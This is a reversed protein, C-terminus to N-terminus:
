GQGRLGGAVAPALGALRGCPGGASTPSGDRPARSALRGSASWSPGSASASRRSARGGGGPWSRVSWDGSEGQHTGVLREMLWWALADHTAETVRVVRIDPRRKLADMFRHHGVQVAVVVAVDRRVIGRGGRFAASAFEMTGLEDVVVVGGLGSDGLASLAAREFAALDFGYRGVRPPGPLGVYAFVERAGSVAEVVFGERRGSTRLEGTTFGGVPVDAEQLLTVLRRAVTTKGIGPRDKLLLRPTGEDV